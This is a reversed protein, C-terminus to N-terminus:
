LTIKINKGYNVKSIFVTIYLTYFISSPLRPLLNFDVNQMSPNIIIKKHHMGCENM